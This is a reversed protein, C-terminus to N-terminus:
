PITNSLVTFVGQQRRSLSCHSASPWGWSRREMVMSIITGCGQFLPRPFFVRAGVFVLRRGRVNIAEDGSALIFDAGM